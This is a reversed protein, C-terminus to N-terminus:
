DSIVEVILRVLFFFVFRGKKWYWKQEVVVIIM